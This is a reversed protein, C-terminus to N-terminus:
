LCTIPWYELLKRNAIKLYLFQYNIEHIFKDIRKAFFASNFFYSYYIPSGVASKPRLGLFKEGFIKKYEKRFFGNGFLNGIHFLKKYKRM